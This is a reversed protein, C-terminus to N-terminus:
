FDFDSNIVLVSISVQSFVVRIYMIQKDTGNTITTGNIEITLEGEIAISAGNPDLQPVRYNYKVFNRLDTVFLNHIDPNNEGLNGDGDKYYITIKIKSSLEDATSPSISLFEIQPIDSTIPEDKKCGTISIIFLASILFYIAKM